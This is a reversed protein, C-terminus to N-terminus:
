DNSKWCLLLVSAVYFRFTAPSNSIDSVHDHFHVIATNKAPRCFLKHVKGFRSFHKELIEKKNLATPVNRCQLISSDTPSMASLSESSEKRENRKVPTTTGLTADRDKKKKKPTICLPLNLRSTNRVYQRYLSTQM